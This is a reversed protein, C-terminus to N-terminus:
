ILDEDDSGHIADPAPEDAQVGNLQDAWGSGNTWIFEKLEDRTAPRPKSGAEDITAAVQKRQEDSVEVTEYINVKM